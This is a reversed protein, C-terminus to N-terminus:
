MLEILKSFQHFTFKVADNLHIWPVGGMLTTNCGKLCYIQYSNLELFAANEILLKRPIESSITQFHDPNLGYSIRLGNLFIEESYEYLVGGMALGILGEVCFCTEGNVRRVLRGHTQKKTTLLEQLRVKLDSDITTTM